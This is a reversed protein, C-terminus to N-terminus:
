FIKYRLMELKRKRKGKRKVEKYHEKCLYSRGTAEVSMKAESIQEASVSRVARENCGVVSCVTGRAVRGM